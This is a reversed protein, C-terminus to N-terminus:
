SSISRPMKRTVGGGRPVPDALHERNQWGRTSKGEVYAPPGLVATYYEVAAKYDNFYLAIGHLGIFDFKPEPLPDAFYAKKYSEYDMGMESELVILPYLGM